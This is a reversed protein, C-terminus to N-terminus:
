RVVLVPLKGLHLVKHTTSGLLLAQLHGAGHCGMVIISAGTSGAEELIESAVRGDLAERVEGVATVGASTLQAVADNVVKTAEAHERTQWDRWAQTTRENSVGDARGIFHRERVHLVEVESGSIKALDATAKLTKDDYDSADIAVLIREFM